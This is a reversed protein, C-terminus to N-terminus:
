APDLQKVDFLLSSDFEAGKGVHWLAKILKRMVAVVAVNRSRGPHSDVKKMYWSKIVPDTQPLRIATLYLYRRVDGSGRKTIKLQGKHKGSSKEKLNLGAAKQYASASDYNSSHGLKVMLVAATAKGVAKSLHGLREDKEVLKEVAANFKRVNQRNRYIEEAFMQMAKLEEEIMPVGITHEASAIVAECKDKSLWIGGVKRIVKRAEDPKKAIKEPGGFAILTKLLTASDLDLLRTVEPWYKALKAELRNTNRSLSERHMAMLEVSAALKKEDKGKQPWPGSKGDLHLKAIIAASKADHSSPVGDYVECADKCRKPSVLNVSFGEKTLHHVLADGYTGSPEMAIEVGKAPLSSLCNLLQPVDRPSKWKIVMLISQSEDKFVGFFDEKAVDIGFVIRKGLVLNSLRKWNVQNIATAKYVRKRM